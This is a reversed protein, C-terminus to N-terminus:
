PKETIHKLFQLNIYLHMAVAIVDLHTVFCFETGNYDWRYLLEVRAGPGM